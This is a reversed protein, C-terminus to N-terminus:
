GARQLQERLSPGVLDRIGAGEAGQRPLNELFSAAVLEREEHSAAAAFWREIFDLVGRLTQDTPDEIFRQLVWRTVEGLWVHPLLGDYDNLHEQLLATLDPFQSTLAGVFAVDRAKM